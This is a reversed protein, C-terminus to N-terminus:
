FFGLANTLGGLLSATGQNRIQSATAAGGALITNKEIEARRREWQMDQAWQNELEERFKRASGTNLQINGAGAAFRATGVAFQRERDMRRLNADREELVNRAQEEALRRADDAADRSSLAGMLGGLLSAGAGAIALPSAM